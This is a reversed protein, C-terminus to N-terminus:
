SRLFDLSRYEDVVAELERIRAKGEEVLRAGAATWKRVDPEAPPIDALIAASERLTLGVRQGAKALKIRCVADITFRRANGATRAGSIVGNREYLRVTNPSVGAQAAVEGVTLTATLTEKTLTEKTLRATPTGAVSPKGPSTEIATM